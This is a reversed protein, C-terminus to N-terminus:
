RWQTSPTDGGRASKTICSLDIFPNVNGDIKQGGMVSSATGSTTSVTGALGYHPITQGGHTITRTNWDGKPWRGIGPRAAWRISM